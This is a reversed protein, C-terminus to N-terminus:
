GGGLSEDPDIEKTNVLVVDFFSVRLDAHHVLNKAVRLSSADM